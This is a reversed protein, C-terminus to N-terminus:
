RGENKVTVQKTDVAKVGPVRRVAEAAALLQERTDVTGDLTVVGANVKSTLSLDKLQGDNKMAAKIGDEIKDDAANVEKRKAEPVVQLQNDVSKVGTIGKAVETASTKAEATDVKGSLTVVGDKTDVTTAFGSTRKDGILAVKTKVTIWGDNSTEKAGEGAPRANANETHNANAPRNANNTNGAENCASTFALLALAFASLLVRM